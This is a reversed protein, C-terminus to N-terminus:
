RRDHRSHSAFVWRGILTRVETSKARADSLAQEPSKPYPDVLEQDLLLDEDYQDIDIKRFSDM